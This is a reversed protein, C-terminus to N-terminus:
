MVEFSNAISCKMDCLNQVLLGLLGIETPDPDRCTLTHPTSFSGWYARPCCGMWFYILCLKLMMSYKTSFGINEHLKSFSLKFTKSSFKAWGELPGPNGTPM